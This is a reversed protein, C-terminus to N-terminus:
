RPHKAGDIVKNFPQEAGAVYLFDVVGCCEKIAPAVEELVAVIADRHEQDVCIVKYRTGPVLSRQDPNIGATKSIKPHDDGVNLHALYPEAGMGLVSAYTAVAFPEASDDLPVILVPGRYDRLYFRIAAASKKRYEKMSRLFVLRSTM